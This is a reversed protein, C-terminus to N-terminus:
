QPSSGTAAASRAAHLLSARESGGGGSSARGVSLARARAASAALASASPLPLPARASPALMAGLAKAAAERLPLAPYARRLTAVVLLALALPVLVGAAV